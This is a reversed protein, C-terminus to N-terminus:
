TKDHSNRWEKLRCEKITEVESECQFAYKIQNLMIEVDAIKEHINEIKDKTDIGKKIFYVYDLSNNALELCSNFLDMLKESISKEEAMEKYIDNM